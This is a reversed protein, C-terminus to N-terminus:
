SNRGLGKQSKLAVQIFIDPQNGGDYNKSRMQGSKWSRKPIPPKRQSPRAYKGGESREPMAKEPLICRLYGPIPIGLGELHDVVSKRTVAEGKGYLNRIASFLHRQDPDEFYGHEIGWRGILEPKYAVQWLKYLQKIKNM